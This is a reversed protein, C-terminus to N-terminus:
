EAEEPHDEAMEQMDDHIRRLLDHLAHERSNPTGPTLYWRRWRDVIALENPNLDVSIKM